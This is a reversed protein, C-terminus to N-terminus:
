RGAPSPGTPTGPQRSVWAALESPEFRTNRGVKRCPLEGNASKRYVWDTSVGLYLAAEAVSWLPERKEATPSM